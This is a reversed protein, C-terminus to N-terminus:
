TGCLCRTTMWPCTCPVAKAEPQSVDRVGEGENAGAAQKIVAGAFSYDLAILREQLLEDDGAFATGTAGDDFADLCGGKGDVGRDATEFDM